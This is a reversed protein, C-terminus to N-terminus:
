DDNSGQELYTIGKPTWLERPHKQLYVLQATELAVAEPDQDKYPCGKAEQSKEYFAVVENWMGETDDGVLGALGDVIIEAKGRGIKWCGPINDGPDGALVQIWFAREADEESVEYFVHKMYDYHTGPIQDLDKDISAVVYPVKEARAQYALISVEDDAERGHIVRANHTETMYDRIAQYHVPIHATDRNGKYPRQKAIAYRYNGPGSLVLLPQMTESPWKDCAQYNIFEITNKVGQLAHSVPEAIVEKRKEVVTLAPYKALFEELKANATQGTEPTLKRDFLNGEGDELVVHLTTKESAFGSRYVIPDSDVLLRM